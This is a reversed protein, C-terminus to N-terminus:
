SPLTEDKPWTFIFTAGKGQESEVRIQGGRHEVIKKILALGMGSGSSGDRPKLSQFLEFIREHHRAEIGPGNDKVRFEYFGNGLDKSAIEVRCPEEPNEHHKVANDILNRFVQELPVRCAVVKPLDAALNFKVGEPLSLLHIIELLIERCDILEAEKGERGARSFQLLDDLLKQMRKVQENMKTLHKRSTEPLAEGADEAVWSCLHTIGRLPARMDHSAIRAFQDLEQNSRELEAAYDRLRKQARMRDSIDVVSALVFDGESTTLPNLGIEVPFESGDKRLAFLDRGAGMLRAKPDDHFSERSGAHAGRFRAPVLGDISKGLMEGPEFGFIKEAASNAMVIMGSHDAMLMGNPAAEVTLRIREEAEKREQIEKELRDNVAALGPLKLAEPVLKVLAVVTAWSVVATLFKVLGSLRYAPWWFIFAEILHVTGCAFIFAGFLWFIRPFFMDKRRTVFYALVLPIATYAGWVALDSLIHLWGHFETWGAGCYWRAPFDSTDFLKSFFDLM